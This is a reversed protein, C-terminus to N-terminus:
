EFIEVPLSILTSLEGTFKCYFSVLTSVTLSLVQAVDLSEQRVVVRAAGVLKQDALIAAFRIRLEVVDLIMNVHVSALRGVTAAITALSKGLHGVPVAVLLFDARFAKSNILLSVFLSMPCLKHLGISQTGVNMQDLRGM